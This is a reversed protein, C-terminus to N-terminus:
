KLQTLGGLLYTLTHVFNLLQFCFNWVVDDFSPAFLTRLDMSCQEGLDQELIATSFESDM